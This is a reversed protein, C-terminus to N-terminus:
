FLYDTFYKEGAFFRPWVSNSNRGIKRSQERRKSGKKRDDM